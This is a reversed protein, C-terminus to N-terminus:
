GDPMRLVAKIAVGKLTDDIAENIRAFDYIGVAVVRVLVDQPHSLTITVPEIEFPGGASRVVAAVGQKIVNM